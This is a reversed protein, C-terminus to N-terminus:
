ESESGSDSDSDSESDSESESSSEENANYEQINESIHEWDSTLLFYGLVLGTTSYGCIVAGVTGQLDYLFYFTSISSLPLTVFVTMCVSVTTALKYRGQAGILTWSIMGFVMFINAIGIMPILENLMNQLTEDPTLWTALDEGFIFIISTVFFSLSVGMFLAKYSSMKAMTINGKGLHYAVRISAAETLGETAAEFIAWLSEM